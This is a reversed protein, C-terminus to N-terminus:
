SREVALREVKCAPCYGNTTAAGLAQKNKLPRKCHPCEYRHVGNTPLPAIKPELPLVILKDLLAREQAGSKDAADTGVSAGELLRSREPLAELAQQATVASAVSSRKSYMNLTYAFAVLPFGAHLWAWDGQAQYVYFAVLVSFVLAVGATAWTWFSFRNEEAWAIAGVYVLEYGLAGMVAFWFSADVQDSGRWLWLFVAYSQPAVAFLLPAYRAELLVLFPAFRQKM